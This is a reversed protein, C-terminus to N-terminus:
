RTPPSKGEPRHIAVVVEGAIQREFLDIQESLDEIMGEVDAATEDAIYKLLGCGRTRGPTRM